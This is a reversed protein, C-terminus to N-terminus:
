TNVSSRRVASVVPQTLGESTSNFQQASIPMTGGVISALAVLMWLDQAYLESLFFGSVCAGLLSAFLARSFAIRELAPRDTFTAPASRSTKAARLMAAVLISIFLALGEIGLEVLAQLFMNHPARYRGRAFLGDVTAFAGAGFGWPRHLVFPLTDLWITLRGGDAVNANYDSSLSTITSLRTRASQPLVSWVFAGIVIMIAARSLCRRMKLQTDLNGRRRKPLLVIMVVTVVLLGLLGGRSETRLITLVSWLSIALYIWRGLRGSTIAFTVVLPLLTVLVFAFDNPDYASTHGSRGNDSTILAAVVLVLTSGVFGGLMLRTDSWSQAAKVVLITGVIVSLVTGEIVGLTGSRLVSFFISVTVLAMLLMALRIPTISLVKTQALAKRHRLALFIGMAAVIKALPLARLPAFLSEIRGVTVVIYFAMVWALPSASERRARRLAESSMITRPASENAVIM